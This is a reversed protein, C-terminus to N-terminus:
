KVLKSIQKFVPSGAKRTLEFLLSESSTVLAGEQRMRELALQHDGEKRSSLADAVVVPQYGEALLDLVTQLVCVHSEIGAILVQRRGSEKLAEVFAAEDMCSFSIKEIAPQEGLLKRLGEVTSGLGRPYQETVLMPVELLKWGRVLLTCARLTEEQRHMVPLLGEQVDIVLGLSQNKDIRMPHEKIEPNRAWTAGM